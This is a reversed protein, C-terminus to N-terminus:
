LEASREAELVSRSWASDIFGQPGKLRSELQTWRPEKQVAGQVAARQSIREAPAEMDRAVTFGRHDCADIAARPERTRATLM